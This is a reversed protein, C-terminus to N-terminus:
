LILVGTLLEGGTRLDIKMERGAAMHPTLEYAILDGTRTAAYQTIGSIIQRIRDYDPHPPNESVIHGNVAVTLPKFDPFAGYDSIPHSQLPVISTFDLAEAIFERDGCISDDLEPYLLIGYGFADLYRHAFRKEVCKGPRSCRFWVIPSFSISKVYDPLYYREQSRTMTSDPRFKFLNFDHNVTLINM